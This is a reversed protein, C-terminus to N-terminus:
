RTLIILSILAAILMALSSLFVPIYIYKPIPKEEVMQMYTFYDQKPKKGVIMRLFTISGYIFFSLVNQNYVFMMWAFFFQLVFALWLADGIAMPSTDNQWFLGFGVLLIDIIVIIVITLIIPRLNSKTKTKKM